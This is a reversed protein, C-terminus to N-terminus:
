FLFSFGEVAELAQLFDRPDPAFTPCETCAGQVWWWLATPLVGLSREGLM